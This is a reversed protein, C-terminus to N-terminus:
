EIESVNMFVWRRSLRRGDPLFSVGNLHCLASAAVFVRIVCQFRPADPQKDHESKDATSIKRQFHVLGFSNTRM